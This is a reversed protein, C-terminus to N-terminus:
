GEEGEENRKGGKGGEDEEDGKGKRESITKSAFPRLLLSRYGLCRSGYFGAVRDEQAWVRRAPPHNARHLTYMPFPADRKRGDGIM